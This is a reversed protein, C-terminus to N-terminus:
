LVPSRPGPRLPWPTGRQTQQLLTGASYLCLAATHPLATFDLVNEPQSCAQFESGRIEAQSSPPLVVQAGPVLAMLIDPGM